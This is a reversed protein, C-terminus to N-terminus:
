PWRHLLLYCGVLDMKTTARGTESNQALPKETLMDLFGKADLDIQPDVVFTADPLSRPTITEPLDTVLLGKEGEEKESKSEDDNDAEKTNKKKVARLVSNDISRFKVTPRYRAKEVRKSNNM